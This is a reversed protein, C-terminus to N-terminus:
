KEGRVMAADRLRRLQLILLREHRADHRLHCQGLAPWTFRDVQEPAGVPIV